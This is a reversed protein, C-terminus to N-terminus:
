RVRCSFEGLLNGRFYAEGSYEGPALSVELGVSLREGETVTSTLKKVYDRGAIDVSFEGLFFRGSKTTVLHMVVYQKSCAIDDLIFDPQIYIYITYFSAIILLFIVFWPLWKNRTGPAQPYNNQQVWYYSPYYTGM